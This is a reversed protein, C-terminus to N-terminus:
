DVPFAVGISGAVRYRSRKDNSGLGDANTSFRRAFIMDVGLDAVVGFGRETDYIFRVFPHLGLDMFARKKGEATATGEAFSGNDVGQSYLLVPGVGASIGTTALNESFRWHRFLKLVFGYDMIHNGTAVRLDMAVWRDLRAFELKGGARTGSEITSLSQIFQGSVAAYAGLDDAAYVPKVFCGIVLFFVYFFRAM